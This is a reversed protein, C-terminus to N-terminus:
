GFPYGVPELAVTSLAGATAGDVLTRAADAALARPLERGIVRSIRPPGSPYQHDAPM